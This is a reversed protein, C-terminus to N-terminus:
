FGFTTAGMAAVVVVFAGAFNVASGGMSGFVGGGFTVGSWSRTAASAEAEEGDQNGDDDEFTGGRDANDVVATPSATPSLSGVEGRSISTPSGTM